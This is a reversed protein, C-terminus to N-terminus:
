EYPNTLPRPREPPCTRSPLPLAKPASAAYEIAAPQDAMWDDHGEWNMASGPIASLILMPLAPLKM